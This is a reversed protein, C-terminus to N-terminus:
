FDYRGGVYYFTRSSSENRLASSTKSSEVSLESELAVEQRVRWTLRLGPAWRTSTVNDNSVQRYFRFSPDVQLGPLLTSSQNYSLLQGQFTPGTIFNAILVHTDRASYLNTGIFQLGVSWIDGSSPQGQPLLDPVPALAGTNTYRVDAGLQWRASLPTTVGLAAQTSAATTDRVQQRLAPVTVGTNLLDAVRTAAGGSFFLANGLMMLPTKRRDVMLNFVTNDPRQWTGQLSAINLGKLVVDYDLQSSLSLGEDFYRLDTGLARRDVQGDIKQEIGYFSVGLKPVLAEAEVSLGYFHRKTDLLKDSPVGAVVNAKWRPRFAYGAQVGDFRGLVGGGLPTQRGLRFSTGNSFSRRDYYLASLKNRSKDPRNFDKSYSDRFVFRQDSDADRQRWNVDVATALQSQDTASLTGDSVLEPLGGIVSEQFEQTRIKSQGGYYFSSISGTLTTTAASRDPGAAPGLLPVSLRTLEARLRNSDPGEPYLRLFAEFEARARGSDGAKLRALGILEHGGRTSRNPPMELLRGLADIATQAAGSALAERATNLLAAAQKELEADTVTAEALAPGAATAAAATATPVDPTPASATAAAAAPVTAPAEARLPADETTVAALPFRGRVARLASDAEARTAFPGLHTEYLVKGNVVRRSTFVNVNQLAAPIPASLFAGAQETTELTVRLLGRQEPPLETLPTPPLKSGQGELVVEITRPDRGARVRHSFPASLRVLLRREREIRGAVPEDSVRIGPLQTGGLGASLQRESPSEVLVLRTPLVRYFVVSQDASKASLARLFQVATVFRIHVVADAGARRIEIEDILQARAPSAALLLCAASAGAWLLRWRGALRVLPSPWPASFAALNFREIILGM